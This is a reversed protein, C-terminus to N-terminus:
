TIGESYKGSYLRRHRSSYGHYSYAGTDTKGLQLPFNKLNESSIINENIETQISILYSPKNKFIFSM